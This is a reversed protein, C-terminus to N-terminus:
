ESLFDFSKRGSVSHKGNFIDITLNEEAGMLAYIRKISEHAKKSADIPFIKDKEGSEILLRRPALSSAFDYIEGTRLIHPIYNDPCHWM